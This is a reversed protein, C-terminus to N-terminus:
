EGTGMLPISLTDQWLQLQSNDMYNADNMDFEGSLGLSIAQMQLSLQWAQSLLQLQNFQITQYERTAQQVETVSFKGIEFGELTKQQISKALPLQHQQLQQYQSSLANLRILGAQIQQERLSVNYRQQDMSIHSLAQTAQIIGQNRNFVPIPMSVGLTLRNDMDNQMSPIRTQNIGLSVTPQPKSQAKALVLRAQAQKQQQQLLQQQPSDQLISVNLGAEDLEPWINNSTLAATSIFVPQTNGWLRALQFRVEKLGAQAMALQTLVQQHAILVRSYEVEAIRGAELRRKAAQESAESLRSQAQILQLQREAQAVRWYAATVALKLQAQYALQRTAESDLTITALKKKASRVGFLDLKQSVAFSREQEVTSKFGTQEFSIEPNQWLSSQKLNGEAIELRSQWLAQLPQYQQALQIAQDLTLVARNEQLGVAPAQTTLIAAPANEAWLPTSILTLSTICLVYKAQKFLNFYFM